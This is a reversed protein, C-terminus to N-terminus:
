RTMMARDVSGRMTLLDPLPAYGLRANVAQMAGNDEDNGTELATLGHDIAWAITRLKLATALGRGRWARVVATMDHFAIGSTGPKMVLSAYGAVAGASRDIAIAFGGPPIGPRDVDRARFEALDGTAMPGDEGPIDLFAEAAVAHVGPVLDPRTALDTLDIGAPPQVDPRALGALDLRIARMREHEIFGRHELFAIADPRDAVTPVHLEPKGAAKAATAVAALLASGAGQRRAEPTVDVTAWWAPFSEEYVYIRGATAAGVPRGDLEALFRVGGPYTRDSWRMDEISTTDEPSAANVIAAIAGLDADDTTARRVAVTM